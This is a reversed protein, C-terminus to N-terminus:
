GKWIPYVGILANTAIKRTDEGFTENGAIWALYSEPVDSLARGAFKGVACTPIHSSTSFKFFGRHDIKLDRASSIKVAKDLTLTDSHEDIQEELVHCTATIDAMADHAGEFPFGCYHLHASQLNRKGRGKGMGYYHTFIKYCDILGAPKPAKRGFKKFHNKFIPVDFKVNNYGVWYAGDALGFLTDAYVDFSALDKVMDDTFGHVRSAGEEIPTMPNMVLTDFDERRNGAEDEVDFRKYAMQVIGCTDVDIGTTELDFFFLPVDFM